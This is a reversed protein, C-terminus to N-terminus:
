TTSLTAQVISSCGEKALLRREYAQITSGEDAMKITVPPAYDEVRDPAEDGVRGALSAELADSVGLAPSLRAFFGPLLSEAGEVTCADGLARECLRAAGLQVLRADLRRAFANYKAGYRADGLGYLAYRRGELRPAGKRLLASWFKKGNSPPAGDGATAAFIITTTSDTALADLPVPDSTPVNRLRLWSRCRWALAEARGTESAYAIRVDM